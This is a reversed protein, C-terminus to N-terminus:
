NSFNGKSVIFSFERRTKFTNSWFSKTTHIPMLGINYLIPMNGIFIPFVENKVSYLEIKQKIM